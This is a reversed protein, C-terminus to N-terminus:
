AIHGIKRGEGGFRAVWAGRADVLEGRQLHESQDMLLVCGDGRRDLRLQGGNRAGDVGDGLAEGAAAAEEVDSRPGAAAEADEVGGLTWRRKGDRGRQNLAEDCASVSSQSFGGLVGFVGGFLAGAVEGGGAKGGGVGQDSDGGASARGVDQARHDM